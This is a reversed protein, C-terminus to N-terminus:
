DAAVGILTQDKVGSIQVNMWSGSKKDGLPVFVPLYEATRARQYGAPSHGGGEIIVRRSAGIRSSLLHHRVEEGAARLRRSRRKREDVVVQNAIRSAPTGSRASFSFVHPYALGLDRVAELTQQFDSETETPFGAMLDASIVVDPIKKYLYAVREYLLDRDYRRKMRKLILTSASQISLHVHPCLRESEAILDVVEADLHVPDLSSLRLRFDGEMANLKTLLTSLGSGSEGRLDSGYSGLDVGCVVLERFGNEVLRRAQELVQQCPQSQSRGRARHIVCFTCRQDCGQQVQLFARSKNEFGSLLRQPLSTGGDPDGVMISPLNGDLLSPLLADLELKKDNGVVLDVGPISACEQPKLQAYCGTVIVVADPNERVVRRVAQRAQRDAEHTVTCTNIIHVKSRGDKGPTLAQNNLAETILASEFSNVKCGLTTVAVRPTSLGPRSLEEEKDRNQHGKLLSCDLAQKM